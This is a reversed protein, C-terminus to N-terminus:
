NESRRKTVAVIKILAVKLKGKLLVFKAGM